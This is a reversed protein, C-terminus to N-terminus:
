KKGWSVDYSIALGVVVEGAAKYGFGNPGAHVEASGGVGGQMVAGTWQVTVGLLSFGAIVKEKALQATGGGGVKVGDTNASAAVSGEASPGDVSFGFAVNNEETGLQAEATYNAATASGEVEATLGTKDLKLSKDFKGGALTGEIHVGSGKPDMTFKALHAYFSGDDNKGADPGSGKFPGEDTKPEEQSEQKPCPPEGDGGCGCGGAEPAMGDPDIFRIPNDFAYNYPSHRRMQDALPDVVGWRGVDAMYMRAGYDLWGLNLEDQLEKGNYKFDQKLSNERSYSNFALGFPYYDDMQVVPSKVHTVKFDDFYIDVPTTEENSLFIYVYGAVDITIEPSFLREHTVDQGIEKPTASLRDFNSKSLILNYDRDFVLWNLYAKPGSETSSATISGAQTPFPFSSTSSSFQGGDKVTGSNTTGASILSAVQTLFSNLAGTRNGSVPDIYKAYVEATIKDGPMVSISRALGYRENDGGSLREAYGTTTTPAVGSTHDFAYYQVKRV